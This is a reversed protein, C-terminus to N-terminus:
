LKVIKDRKRNYLKKNKFVRHYSILNIGAKIDEKRSQSKYILILSEKNIKKM